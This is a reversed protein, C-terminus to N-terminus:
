LSDFVMQNRLPWRQTRIELSRLWTVQSTAPSTFASMLNKKPKQFLLNVINKKKPKKKQNKTSKPKQAKQFLLAKVFGLLTGIGEFPHSRQNTKLVEGFLLGKLTKTPKEIIRLPKKRSTKSAVEIM